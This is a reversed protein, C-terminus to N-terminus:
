MKSNAIDIADFLESNHYKLYILTSNINSHGLFKQLLVINVGSSLLHIARSHRFMHSHAFKLKNEGFVSSVTTQLRLWVATNTVPKRDAKKAFIYDTNKMFNTSKHIMLLKTLESSLKLIRFSPKRQKLTMIKVKNEYFMIDDFKVNMGESIRCGTEFLFLYLMKWFPKTEASILKEIDRVHLYKIESDGTKASSIIEPETSNNQIICINNM